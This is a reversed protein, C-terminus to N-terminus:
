RAPGLGALADLGPADVVAGPSWVRAKAPSVGVSNAGRGLWSCLRFLSEKQDLDDWSCTVKGAEGGGTCGDAMGSVHASAM